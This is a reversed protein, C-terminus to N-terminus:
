QNILVLKCSVVSYLHRYDMWGDLMWGDIMWGDITWGDDMWGDIMWGDIMWGDMWGVLREGM